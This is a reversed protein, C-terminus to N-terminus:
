RWEDAPVCAEPDVALWCDVSGDVETFVRKVGTSHQAIAPTSQEGDTSHTHREDM